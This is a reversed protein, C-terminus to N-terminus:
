NFIWMMVLWTASTAIVGVFLGFRAAKDISDDSIKIFDELQEKLFEKAKEKTIYKDSVIECTAKIAKRAVDEEFKTLEREIM